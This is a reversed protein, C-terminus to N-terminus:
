ATSRYAAHPSISGAIPRAVAATTIQGYSDPGGNDFPVPTWSQFPSGNNMAASAIGASFLLMMSLVFFKKM